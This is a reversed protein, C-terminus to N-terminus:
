LGTEKASPGNKIKGDPPKGRGHGCFAVRAGELANEPSGEASPVPYARDSDEVPM